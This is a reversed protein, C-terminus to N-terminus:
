SIRRSRTGCCTRRCRRRRSHRRARAYRKILAWFAQRTLPATADRDPVRAPPAQGAALLPRARAESLAQALRRGGRRAPGATGQQGQRDRAGRGRRARGARAELGILESVRLGTAYLTELMARDRLGLTSEVDPAALLAEVQAESLHKPLRRPKKPARVRLTPDERVAGRELQLRYFRRLASLRRAVSTAKAKARSSSPSGASRRRRPRRGAAVQAARSGRAGRSSTAGIARSRRRRSGTRCGVPRLVRRDARATCRAVDPASATARTSSCGASSRSRSRGRGCEHVRRARRPQRRRSPLSHDARHPERRVGPRRRAARQAGHARDRRLHAIRRAPDRASRTGSARQFPTGGRRSRCAHLPVASRRPLARDRAGRARRRPRRAGARARRAPLYRRQTVARRRRHSHRARRVADRLSRRRLRRSADSARRGDGRRAALDRREPFATIIAICSSWCCSSRCRCARSRLQQRARDHEAARVPQLRGAAHGRAIEVLLVIFIGFWILDFGAKQIM